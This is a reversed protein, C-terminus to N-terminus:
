KELIVYDGFYSDFVKLLNEYDGTMMEATIASGDLNLQRAFKKAYGMLCFANGEPGTLDIVIPGSNKIKDRIM